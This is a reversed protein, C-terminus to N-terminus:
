LRHIEVLDSHRLLMQASIRIIVCNMKVRLRQRFESDVYGYDLSMSPDSFGRGSPYNYDFSRCLGYVCKVNRNLNQNM